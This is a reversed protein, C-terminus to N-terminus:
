TGPQIEQQSKYEENKEESGKKPFSTKSKPKGTSRVPKTKKIFKSFDGHKKPTKGQPKKEM